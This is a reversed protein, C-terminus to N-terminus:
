QVPPLREGAQAIFQEFLDVPLPETVHGIFTM